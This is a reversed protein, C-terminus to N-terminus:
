VRLVLTGRVVEDELIIQANSLIAEPPCLTSADRENDTTKSWALLFPNAGHTLDCSQVPLDMGIYPAPFELPYWHNQTNLDHPPKITYRYVNNFFM